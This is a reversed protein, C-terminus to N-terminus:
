FRSHDLLFRGDSLDLLSALLNGLMNCLGVGFEGACDILSAGCPSLFPIAHADNTRLDRAFGKFEASLQYRQDDDDNNHNDHDHDFDEMILLAQMM